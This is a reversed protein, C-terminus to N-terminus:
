NQASTDKLQWIKLSGDDACTMLIPLTPHWRVCNIDSQHARDKIILRIFVIKELVRATLNSSEESQGIRYIILRDDGGVSALIQLESNYSLSYIPMEHYGSLTLSLSFKGNPQREFVRITNDSSCSFLLTGDSSFQLGWVTDGHDELTQLCYYEKDADVTWIKILNDYGASALTAVEKSLDDPCPLLVQCFRVFKVDETHDALTELCEFELEEDYDWLWVTADRSCSVIVNETPHFDVCKVENEHGELITVCKFENNKNEWISLTADFSGLVLLDGDQGIAISRVTKSHEHVLSELERVDVDEVVPIHNEQQM